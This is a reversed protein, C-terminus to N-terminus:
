AATEGTPQQPLLDLPGAGVPMVKTKLTESSEGFAVVLNSYGIDFGVKFM